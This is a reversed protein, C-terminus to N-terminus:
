AGRERRQRGHKCRTCGGDHDGTDECGVAHRRHTVVCPGRLERRLLDQVQSERVDLLGERGGKDVHDPPAPDPRSLGIRLLGVPARSVQGGLGRHRAAEDPQAAVRHALVVAAQAAEAQILGDVRPRQKLMGLADAHGGGLDRGHDTSDHEAVVRLFPGRCGGLPGGGSVGSL